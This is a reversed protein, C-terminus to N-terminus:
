KAENAWNIKYWQVVGQYFGHYGILYALGMCYPNDPKKARKDREDALAIFEPDSTIEPGFEELRTVGQGLGIRALDKNNRLRMSAERIMNGHKQHKVTELIVEFNDKMEPRIYCIDTPNARLVLAVAEPCLQLRESMHVIFWGGQGKNKENNFILKVTEMDDRLEPSFALALRGHFDGRDLIATLHELTKIQPEKAYFQAERDVSLASYKDRSEWDEFNDPNQPCAAWPYQFWWGHMKKTIPDIAPVTRNEYEPDKTRSSFCGVFKAPVVVPNTEGEAGSPSTEPPADAVAVATTCLTTSMAAVYFPRQLSAAQRLAAVAFLRHRFM